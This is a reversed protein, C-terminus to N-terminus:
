GPLPLWRNGGARFLTVVRSSSELAGAESFAYTAGLGSFTDLQRVYAAVAERNTAGSRVASVFLRGMDWGEVAYPAPPGGYESQYDHIFQQAELSAASGPDACSCSAVTGDGSRGTLTLFTRDRIADPGFLKVGALGAADLEIRVLGANSGTGGFVLAHCGSSRLRQVTRAPISQEAPILFRGVVKRSTAREVFDTFMSGYPSGDTGICVGREGSRSTDLMEGVAKAQDQLPAVARYSDRWPEKPDPNVTSLSITALGAASLREGLSPPASWFPSVIAGVYSPDALDDALVEDLREADGVDQPVIEVAATMDGEESAQALALKAGQFAPVMREYAGEPMLNELFAIKLDAAEDPGTPEPESRAEPETCSAALLLGVVLLPIPALARQWMTTRFPM